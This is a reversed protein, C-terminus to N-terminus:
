ALADRFATYNTTEYPRCYIAFVINDFYGKYDPLADRYAEAVVTPDNAFAGCGFAGLVLNDVGNVAAVHLIHKARKLHLAYLERDSIISRVGTEANHMNGPQERLNPAACSIVDVTVFTDMRQPITADTKCILVEPSYICADTHLVDRAARNVAYYKEWLWKQTLAPYLTSCRCLSEEQASSGTKVGGGPTTASAFNLVATRSGPRYLDMATQFTKGQTVSVVCSKGLNTPLEPYDDAEYLITGAISRKVAEALVANETYFEQTDDFVQVLWQRRDSM